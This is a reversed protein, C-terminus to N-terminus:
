RRRMVIKLAGTQAPAPAVPPVSIADEEDDHEEDENEEGEDDNEEEDIWNENADDDSDLIEEFRDVARAAARRRPISYEEEEDDDNEEDDDSVTEGREKRIAARIQLPEGGHAAQRVARSLGRCGLVDVVRLTERRADVLRELADDTIDSGAVGLARLNALNHSLVDLGRDSVDNANAHSTGLEVTELSRALSTAWPRDRAALFEIGEDSAFGTKAARLCRLAGLWLSPIGWLHVASIACGTVDLDEVDAYRTLADLVFADVYSPTLSHGTSHPYTAAGVHLTKLNQWGPVDGAFAAGQANPVTSWGSAGGFGNLLLTEVNPCSRQLELWPLNQHHMGSHSLNLHRLASGCCKHLNRIFGRDLGTVDAVSLRTLKDTLMGSVLRNTAGMSRQKVRDLTLNTLRESLPKMGGLTMKSTGSVDLSVLEPCHQHLVRLSADTLVACDALTLATLRAWDGNACYRRVIADSPRAWGYSLDVVRWLARPDSAVAHRWGRCVSAVRPVTPVAGLRHAERRPDETDDAPMEAVMQMVLVLIESPLDAWDLRARKMARAEERSAAARERKLRAARQAMTEEALELADM